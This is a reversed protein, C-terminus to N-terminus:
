RDGTSGFGKTGRETEDLDDVVEVEPYLLVPTIAQCVKQGHQIPIPRTGTNAVFVVYEGTFGEDGVGGLIDAGYKEALGSKGKLIFGTGPPPTVAIGIPVRGYTGPAIVMEEGEGGLDAFLDVGADNKHARVPAKATPTLLKVRLKM